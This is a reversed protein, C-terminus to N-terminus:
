SFPKVNYTERVGIADWIPCHDAIDPGKSEVYAKADHNFRCRFLVLPVRWFLSFARPFFICVACLPLIM